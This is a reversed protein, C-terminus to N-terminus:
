KGSIFSGHILSYNHIQYLDTFIYKALAVIYHSIMYSIDINIAKNSEALSTDSLAYVM